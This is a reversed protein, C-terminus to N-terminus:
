EDGLTVPGKVNTQVVTGTANAVDLKGGVETATVNGQVGDAVVDGAVGSVELNGTLADVTVNGAVKEVRLDGTSYGIRASKVDSLEVAGSSSVVAVQAPVGRVSVTGSQHDFTLAGVSSPVTLSVEVGAAAGKVTAYGITGKRVFKVTVDDDCVAAALRAEGTSATVQVPAEVGRVVIGTLGGTAVTADVTRPSACNGAEAYAALPAAWALLAGIVVRTATTNM